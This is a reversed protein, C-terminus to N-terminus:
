LDLDPRASPSSPTVSSGARRPRDTQRAPFTGSYRRGDTGPYPRDLRPPASCGPGAAPMEPRLDEEQWGPWVWEKIPAAGRRPFAPAGSLDPWRTPDPHTRSSGTNPSSRGAPDLLAEGVADEFETRLTSHETPEYGLRRMLEDSVGSLGTVPGMPVCMPPVNREPCSTGRECWLARLYTHDRPGGYLM